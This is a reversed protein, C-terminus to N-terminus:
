VEVVQCQPTRPMNAPYILFATHFDVISRATVWYEVVFPDNTQILDRDRWIYQVKGTRQVKTKFSSIPYKRSVVISLLFSFFM